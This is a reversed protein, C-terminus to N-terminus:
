DEQQLQTLFADLNIVKEEGWLKFFSEISTCSAICDFGKQKLAQSFTSFLYHKTQCEDHWLYLYGPNLIMNKLKKVTLSDAEKSLTTYVWDNSNTILIARNYFNGYESDICYKDVAVMGTAQSCAKNVVIKSYIKGHELFIESSDTIMPLVATIARPYLAHSDNALRDNEDKLYIGSIMSKVGVIDKNSDIINVRKKEIKPSGIGELKKSLIQSVDDIGESALRGEKFLPGGCIECWHLQDKFDKPERKWWGQEIPWGGPGKFLMDLAAAVECFFAGKPTISASWQNQIWCNDRLPIWEENSIGLDKRSVLLPQHISDNHHDNLMQQGFIVQIREYNRYYQHPMTSWLGLRKTNGNEMIRDYHGHQNVRVKEAFESSKIPMKLIDPELRPRYQESLYEIFREFQPHLTPEGGMIGIIKDFDKLSDVARVFTEWDMFFPKKHHGCFRTCNSCSFVCANTIEIQIAWMDKPSKM